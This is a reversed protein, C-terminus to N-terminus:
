SKKCMCYKKFKDDHVCESQKGYENLRSISGNLQFSNKNKKRVTAEFQAGSPYVDFTVLYHADLKESKAIKASLIKKLRLKICKPENNLEDNIHQLATKVAERVEPLSKDSYSYPICTCWHQDISADICSRNYPVEEFLSQCNPCGTSGSEYKGGALSIINKLTLHFEYPTTLRNRNIKFNQIMEPYTENFWPPFSFFIFPLREEFWGTLLQRVQGFRIGHDSFFIVMADNLIGSENLKVIYDKMKIDMSSISSLDNHSFTNTWFLGFYPDGRYKM